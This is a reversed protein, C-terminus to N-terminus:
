ILLWSDLVAMSDARMAQLFYRVGRKLGDALFTTLDDFLGCVRSMPAHMLPLADEGLEVDRVRHLHNEIGWHGRLAEAIAKPTMVIHEESGIFYHTTLTEDMTSDISRYRTIEGVYSLGHYKELDDIGCGSVRVIKVGRSETRGHGYNVQQFDFPVERWPLQKLLHHAEGANGKLTFLYDHFNDIIVKTIDPSVIGADGTIVGTPLNSTCERVLDCSIPQEGAKAGVIKKGLISVSDVDLLTVDIESKGTGTAASTRSKGDIAYRFFDADPTQESHRSVILRTLLSSAVEFETGICVRRLTSDSPPRDACEVGIGRCVAAFRKWIARVFVEKNRQSRAGNIHAFAAIFYTTRM